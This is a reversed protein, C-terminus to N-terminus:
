ASRLHSGEVAAVSPELTFYFTAGKDPEAEAWVRGGHRQIIRKVIALGIGTGEFQREDHFRQFAGFLKEANCMDFGAGNDRVFFTSAGQSAIHGIEITAVPRKRSYKIANGILNAFVQRILGTDCLASPLDGIRWEIQRGEMESAFDAILRDVIPRLAVTQLALVGRGVRSLKLLDDILRGMHQAADCIRDLYRHNEESLEAGCSEQLIRSFGDIHRLPARLDHSVSYSFAELEKNAAELEATRVRVHQELEENFRRIQQEARERAIAYRIIRALTGGDLNLKAVYDQAGEQVMELALSEDGLGTLIIIPVAPASAKAQDFTQRGKSDPLGLDLLMADIGGGSLRGLASALRNEIELDFPAGATDALSEQILRADGANDEVLLVKYRETM